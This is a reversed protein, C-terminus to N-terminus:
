NIHKIHRKRIQCGTDRVVEACGQSFRELMYVIQVSLYKIDKRITRWDLLLDKATSLLSGTVVGILGSVVSDM